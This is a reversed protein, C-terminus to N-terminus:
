KIILKNNFESISYLPMPKSNRPIILLKQIVKGVEENERQLKIGLSPMKEIMEHNERLCRKLISELASVEEHSLEIKAM